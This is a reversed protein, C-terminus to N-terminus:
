SLPARGIARWENRDGTSRSGGPNWAARLWSRGEARLALARAVDVHDAASRIAPTWRRSAVRTIPQV